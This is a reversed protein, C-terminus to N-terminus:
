PFEIRYQSPTLGTLKKFNRNFSVLSDYGCEYAINAISDTGSDLLYKAKGIRYDNLLARFTTNLNKQLLNSLYHHDYGLEDAISRMTIPESFRGAICLLIEGLVERAKGKRERYGGCSGHFCGAIEYLRAKLMYRSLACSSFDEANWGEPPAFVPNEAECDKVQRYFEGVLSNQFICLYTENKDGPLVAHIQNPFILIMEGAHVSFARQDVVAHLIGSRVYILEFSDHLHPSFTLNVNWQHYIGGSPNARHPEYRIM